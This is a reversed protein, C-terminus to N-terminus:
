RNSFVLRFKFIRETCRTPRFRYSLVSLEGHVIAEYIREAAGERQAGLDISLRPETKKINAIPEPQKLGAYMGVKLRAVAESILLLETEAGKRSV